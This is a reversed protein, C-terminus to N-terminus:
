GRKEYREYINKIKKNENYRQPASGWSNKQYSTIVVGDILLERYARQREEKDNGLEVFRFDETIIPDQDGLGYYRFSSFQYDKPKRVIRARM